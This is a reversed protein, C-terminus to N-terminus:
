YNPTVKAQRRKLGKLLQDLKYVMSSGAPQISDFRSLLTKPPGSVQKGPKRLDINELDYRQAGEALHARDQDHVFLKALFRKDTDAILHLDDSVGVANRPQTGNRSLFSSQIESRFLHSQHIAEWTEKPLDAMKKAASIAFLGCSTNDQQNGLGVILIHPSSGPHKHAITNWKASANTIAAWDVFDKHFPSVSTKTSAPITSCSDFILCSVRGHPGAEKYISVAHSHNGNPRFVGVTHQAVDSTSAFIKHIGEDTHFHHIQIKGLETKRNADHILKGLNKHYKFPNFFVFNKWFYKVRSKAMSAVMAARDKEGRIDKSHQKALNKAPVIWNIYPMYPEMMLSSQM